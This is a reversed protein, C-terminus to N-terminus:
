QTVPPIYGQETSRATTSIFKLNKDNYGDSDHQQQEEGAPMAKIMM